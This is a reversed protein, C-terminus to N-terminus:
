LSSLLNPIEGVIDLATYAYGKEKELKDGAKKLITCADKAADISAMGQAILGAILGALVDGTGGTTLGANGGIIEETAHASFVTDTQGKLVIIAQFENAIDQLDNEDVGM